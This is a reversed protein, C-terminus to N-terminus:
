RNAAYHVDDFLHHAAGEDIKVAWAHATSGSAIPPQDGDVTVNSHGLGLSDLIFLRDWVVRVMFAASPREGANAWRLNPYGPVARLTDSM